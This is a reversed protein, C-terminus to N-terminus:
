GTGPNMLFVAFVAMLVYLLTYSYAFKAIMIMCSVLEKVRRVKNTLTANYNLCEPVFQRIGQKNKTKQTAPNACIGMDAVKVLVGGGEPGPSLCEACSSTAGATLCHHNAPPFRFVLINSCRLDNHIIKVREHLYSLADTM